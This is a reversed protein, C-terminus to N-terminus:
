QHHARPSRSAAIYPWASIVMLIGGGVVAAIAGGLWGGIGSCFAAFGVAFIATNINALLTQTM